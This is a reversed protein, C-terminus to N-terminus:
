KWKSVSNMTKLIIYSLITKYSLTNSHSNVSYDDRRIQEHLPSTLFFFFRKVLEEQLRNALEKVCKLSRTAQLTKNM